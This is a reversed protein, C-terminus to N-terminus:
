PVDAPGFGCGSARNASSSQSPVITCGIQTAGSSMTSRSAAAPSSACRYMSSTSTGATRMPTFGAACPSTPSSEHNQISPKSPEIAAGGIVANPRVMSTRMDDPVTVQSKPSPM